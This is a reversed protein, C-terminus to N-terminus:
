NGATALPAVEYRRPAGWSWRCRLVGAVFRSRGHPDAGREAQAQMTRSEAMHQERQRAREVLAADINTDMHM